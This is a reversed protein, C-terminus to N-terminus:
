NYNLTSILGLVKENLYAGKLEFKNLFSNKLLHSSDVMIQKRHKSLTRIDLGFYAGALGSWIAASMCMPCPECTSVLFLEKLTSKHKYTKLLLNMEAHAVPGDKKVSNVATSVIEGKFDIFSAAYPTKNSMAKGILKEMVKEIENKDPHKM